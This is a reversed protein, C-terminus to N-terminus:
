PLEEMPYEARLAQGAYLATIRDGRIRFRLGMPRQREARLAQHSRPPSRTLSQSSQVGIVIQEREAMATMFSRARRVALAERQVTQLAQGVWLGGSGVASVIM